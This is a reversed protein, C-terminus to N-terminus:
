IGNETLYEKLESFHYNEAYRSIFNNNTHIDIGSNILLKFLDLGCEGYSDLAQRIAIDNQKHIDIGLDILCKVMDYSGFSIALALLKPVKNIDVYESIIKIYELISDCSNYIDVIDYFFPVTIKIGNKLFFRLIEPAENDCTIYIIEQSRLIDKSGSLLRNFSYEVDDISNSEISSILLHYYIGPSITNGFSIQREIDERRM